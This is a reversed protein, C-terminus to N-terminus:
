KKVKFKYTKGVPYVAVIKEEPIWEYIANKSAVILREPYWCRKGDAGRRMFGGLKQMAIINDETEKIKFFGGSASQTDM